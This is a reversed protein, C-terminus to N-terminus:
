LISVEVGDFDTEVVREGGAEEIIRAKEDDDIPKNEGSACPKRSSKL